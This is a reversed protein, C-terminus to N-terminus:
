WNISLGVRINRRPGWNIPDREIERGDGEPTGTDKHVKRV